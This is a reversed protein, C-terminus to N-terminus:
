PDGPCGNIKRLPDQVWSCAHHADSPGCSAVGGICASRAKLWSAGAPLLTCLLSTSCLRVAGSTPRRPGVRSFFRSVISLPFPAPRRPADPAPRLQAAIPAWGHTRLWPHGQGPKQWWPCRPSLSTSGRTQHWEPVLRTGSAGSKSFKRTGESERLIIKLGQTPWKSGPNQCVLPRGTPGAGSQPSKHPLPGM